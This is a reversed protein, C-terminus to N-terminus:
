GSFPWGSFFRTAPIISKSAPTSPKSWQKLTTGSFDNSFQRYLKQIQDDSLQPAYGLLEDISVDFFTALLPLTGIDPKSINKEWKSVSGKTVGIHDALAEQTINKERRLRILNEAIQLQYM